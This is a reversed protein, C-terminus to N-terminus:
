DGPHLPLVSADSRATVAILPGASYDSACQAATGIARSLCKWCRRCRQIMLLYEFPSRFPNIIYIEMGVVGLYIPSAM